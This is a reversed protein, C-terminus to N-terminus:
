YYKELDKNCPSSTFIIKRSSSDLMTLGFFDTVRIMSATNNKSFIDSLDAGFSRYTAINSLWKHPEEFHQWDKDIEIIDGVKFYSAPLNKGNACTQWDPVIKTVEKKLLDFGELYTTEIQGGTLYVVGSDIEKKDRFLSIVTERKTASALEGYKLNEFFVVRNEDTACFFLKGDGFSVLLIRKINPNM